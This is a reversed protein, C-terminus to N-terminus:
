KHIYIHLYEAASDCVRVRACLGATGRWLEPTDYVGCGVAQGCAPMGCLGGHTAKTQTASWFSPNSSSM